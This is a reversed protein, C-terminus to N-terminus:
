SFLNYIFEMTSIILGALNFRAGIPTVVVAAYVVAVVWIVLSVAIEKKLRRGWLFYSEVGAAALLGTVILIVSGM